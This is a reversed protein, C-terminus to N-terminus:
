RLKLLESVVFLASSIIPDTFEVSFTDSHESVFLIFVYFIQGHTERLKLLESFFVFLASNITPDRFEVRVADSHESVVFM